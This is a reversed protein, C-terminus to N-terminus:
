ASIINRFRLWELLRLGTYRGILLNIAAVSLLTLEPQLLVFQQISQQRILWSCIIAIILTEITLQQAESQSGTLQSDLFNETLLIIILLPFISINLFLQIPLFSLAILAIIMFLSVGWMLMATRPLYQLKMRKVIKKMVTSAVLTMVFLFIGNLIGTSLFAVSLVAPTYIGFGKLGVIHRSFSIVATIVPFLLILVLVNAPVGNDVARRIGYLLPTYWNVSSIPRRNLFEVLSDQNEITTKTFDTAPVVTPTPIPSAEDTAVMGSATAPVPFASETSPTAVLPLRQAHVQNSMGHFAFLCLFFSLLLTRQKVPINYM